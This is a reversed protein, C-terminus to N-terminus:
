IFYKKKKRISYDRVQWGVLTHMALMSQSGFEPQWSGDSRMQATQHLWVFLKCMLGKFKVYNSTNPKRASNCGDSWPQVTCIKGGSPFVSCLIQIAAAAESSWKAPSACGAAAAASIAPSIDGEVHSKLHAALLVQPWMWEDISKKAWSFGLGKEGIGGKLHSALPVWGPVWRQPPRRLRLGAPLMEPSPSTGQVEATYQYQCLRSCLPVNLYITLYGQVTRCNNLKRTVRCSLTVFECHM